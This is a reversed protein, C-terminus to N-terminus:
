SLYSDQLLVTLNCSDYYVIHQKNKVTKRQQTLKETNQKTKSNNQKFYIISQNIPQNIYRMHMFISTQCKCKSLSDQQQLLLLSLLLWRDCEGPRRRALSLLLNLPSLSGGASIWFSDFLKETFQISVLLIKLFQQLFSTQFV